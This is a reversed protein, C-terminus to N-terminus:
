RKNYNFPFSAPVDFKIKDFTIRINSSSSAKMQIDRTLAFRGISYKKYDSLRQNAYALSDSIQFHSKELLFPHVSWYYKYEVADKFLTVMLGSTDTKFHKIKKPIFAPNGLLLSEIMSFDFPIHLVQEIAAASRLYVRGKLNNRLKISDPTLLLRVMEIGLVPRISLWIASDKKMRLYATINNYEKEGNKFDIHIRASLTKYHIYHNEIAKRIKRSSWNLASTKSSGATKESIRCGAMGFFIVAILLCVIKGSLQRM